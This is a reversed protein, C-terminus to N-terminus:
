EKVEKLTKIGERITRICVFVGYIAGGAFFFGFGICGLLRLIFSGKEANLIGFSASILIIALPIIGVCGFIGIGINMKAEEKKTYKRRYVM